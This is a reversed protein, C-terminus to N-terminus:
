SLRKEGVICPSGWSQTKRVRGGDRRGGSVRVTFTQAMNEAAKAMTRKMQRLHLLLMSAVARDREEGGQGGQLSRPVVIPVLTQSEDHPGHKLWQLNDDGDSGGREKGTVYSAM